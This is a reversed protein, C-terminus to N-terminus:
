QEIEWLIVEHDCSVGEGCAIWADYLQSSFSLISHKTLWYSILGGKHNQVKVLGITACLDRPNCDLKAALYGITTLVMGVPESSDIETDGGGNTHQAITM